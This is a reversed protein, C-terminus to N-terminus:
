FARPAAGGSASLSRSGFGGGQGPAGAGSSGARGFGYSYSGYPSSGEGSLSGWGGATRMGGGVRYGGGGATPGSGIPYYRGPSGSSGLAYSNSGSDIIKKLPTVVSRDNPGFRRIMRSNDASQISVNKSELVKKSSEIVAVEHGESNDPPAIDWGGRKAGWAAADSEQPKSDGTVMKAVGFLSKQINTCFDALPDRQSAWKSDEQTDSFASTPFITQIAVVLGVLAYAKMSNSVGQVGNFFSCAGRSTRNHLIHGSEGNFSDSHTVVNKGSELM